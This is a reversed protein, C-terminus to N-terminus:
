GSNYLRSHDFIRQVILSADAHLAVRVEALRLRASESAKLFMCGESHAGSLSQLCAMGPQM